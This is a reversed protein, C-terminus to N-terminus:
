LPKYIKAQLESNAFVVWRTPTLFIFRGSVIWHLSREITTTLIPSIQGAVFEDLNHFIYCFCKSLILYANRHRLDIFNISQSVIKLQDQMSLCGGLSSVNITFYCCLSSRLYVQSELVRVQAIRNFLLM